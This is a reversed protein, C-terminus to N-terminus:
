GIPGHRRARVLRSERYHWPLEPRGEKANAAKAAPLALGQLTKTLAEVRQDSGTIVKCTKIALQLAMAEVFLSDWRTVQTVDKVYRLSVTDADTMLRGESALEFDDQTEMREDNIGLARIFDSPLQYAYAYREDTPTGSVRQLDVVDLAFSFSHDRLLGQRAPAFANRIEVASKEGTDGIDMIRREGLHQLALNAVATESTVTPM